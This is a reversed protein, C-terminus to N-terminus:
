STPPTPPTPTDNGTIESKMARFIPTLRRLTENCAAELAFFADALEHRDDDNM